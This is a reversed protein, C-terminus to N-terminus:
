SINQICRLESQFYFYQHELSQTRQTKELRHTSRYSKLCWKHSKGVKERLYVGPSDEGALLLSQWSSLLSETPSHFVTIPTRLEEM